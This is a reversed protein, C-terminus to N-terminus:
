AAALALQDDAVTLGALGGDRDVSEEILLRDVLRAVFRLLEIADIDGHPLLAGGDSLDDLRQLIVARELIRDDDGRGGRLRCRQLEERRIGAAGHALEEAIVAHM